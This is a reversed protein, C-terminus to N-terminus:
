ASKNKVQHKLASLIGGKLNILNKYGHKDQLFQIAEASRQGSQCYVIVKGERNIEGIRDPLEGLPILDGGLNIREHEEKERVDVWQIPEKNQALSTIEEYSIVNIGPDSKPASKISKYGCFEEYDILKEPIPTTTNKPISITQTDMTLADFLYLKGSLPEGIDTIIKIAENAQMSGIIGPLVGLVGAEACNPILEPPPPEPYLDRYNPGRNGEKDVLNFVSVQGEFKFISGYIFPKDLILCADNILYRAPFNDTCDIVLDFNEFLQLANESTLNETFAEIQIHPNLQELKLKAAEAKYDGINHMGFLVQRHLNHIEVRDYDIIGIKGVGAATLYQLVPVGLGGAGVVLVKKAKLMKQGSIGLEPLTIHRSYYLHESKSLTDM